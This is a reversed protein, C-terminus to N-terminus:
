AAAAPPSVSAASAAVSIGARRATLTSGTMASRPSQDPRRFRAAAAPPAHRLRTVPEAASLAAGGVGAFSLFDIVRFDGPTPGLTPVFGGDVHLMSDSDARPLGPFRFFTSWGVFRRAARAGGRADSPDAGPDASTEFIM